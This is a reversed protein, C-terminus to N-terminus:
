RNPRLHREVDLLKVQAQKYRDDERDPVSELIVRLHKSAELWDGIKIAKEARFARDDYREQLLKKTDTRGGIIDQYFDPKPDITELFVDAAEFAKMSKYLNGFSVEKEDFSKKGQLMADRAMEILKEPPVSIVLMGLTNLGFTEVIETAKKFAEPMVRNIVVVRKTRAGTTITLDHSDLIDTQAGKYENELAFFGTNDLQSILKGLTGVDLKKEKTSHRTDALNDVRGTLNSGLLALEFRFINSSTADVKEYQIELAPLAAGKLANHRNLDFLGLKFLVLVITVVFVLGVVLWLTKSVHKRAAADSMATNRSFLDPVEPAAHAATAPANPEVAVPVPSPAEAATPADTRIVASATPASGLVRLTTDGIVIRDGPMLAVDAIPAGNVETTNTSGLDAVRAQGDGALYIRCHFRSLSPDNVVFDNSPDRGIRAGAQDVSYRRGREPGAEVELEIKNPNISLVHSRLVASILVM